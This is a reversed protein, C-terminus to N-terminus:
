EGKYTVELIVESHETVKYAECRRQGIIWLVESGDALVLIKRRQEIPIKADIFYRSVKKRTGEASMIFYDNQQVNRVCLTDRITACDFFKTYSNKSNRAKEVLRKWKTNTGKEKTHVCFSLDGFEALPMQVSTGSIQLLDSVSIVRDIERIKETEELRTRIILKEYSIEAEVNYPLLIKKGSQNGLLDYVAQVHVNSLDKKRGCVKALMEYIVAKSLVTDQQRLHERNCECLVEDPSVTSEEMTAGVDTGSFDTCVRVESHLYADVAKQFFARYAVVEEAFGAIHEVAKTNVQLLEPMVRNRIRNRSYMDEQNTYDEKWSIYQEQLWSVLEYKRCTLLPRIMIGKGNDGSQMEREFESIPHIGEMGAMSSGRVLHFLITEAQDDMHHAVALKNAKVRHMVESFCQYRYIRGMEEESVSQEKAMVPVDAEFLYFPLQLEDCLMKTYEADEMAEQRIKHNVHVVFLQMDYEARMNHLMFLLAVSDAGGSVGVVIRDGKEIMHLAEVYQRVKQEM